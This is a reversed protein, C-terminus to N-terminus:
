QAEGAHRCEIAPAELVFGEARPGRSPPLAHLEFAEGQTIPVVISRCNFHAPPWGEMTIEEKRYPGGADMARCYETTADDMVASWDYAVVFDAVDPDDFKRHRGDNFATNFQMRVITGIRWMEGLTKDTILGQAIYGDFLKKLENETWTVDVRSLGNMVLIKARSLVKETEIGTVFFARRKIEKAAQRIAPTLTLGKDVFAQEVDNLPIDRLPIEFCEPMAYANMKGRQIEQQAELAGYYFASLMFRATAKEMDSRRAIKLGDVENEKEDAVIRRRKVQEILDDRAVLFLEALIDTIQKELGDETELIRAFNIKQEYATLERKVNGPAAHEAKAAKDKTDATDDDSTIPPPEGPVQGPAVVVVPPPEPKPEEFEKEELELLERVRNEIELDPTVVGKEVAAIIQGIYAYKAEDSLPEFKFTPYADVQGYNLDVLPKIIQEDVVTEELDSRVDDVFWLFNSAQQTGLAYAGGGSSSTNMVLEPVFVARGMYINQEQITEKFIEHGRGSTEVSTVVYDKPHLFGTRSQIDTVFKKAVAHAEADPRLPDYAIDIFGGGCRELYIGWFKYVHQKMTWARFCRGYDSRGYPNCFEKRYSYVIFEEPDLREERGGPTAQLLATVNRFEDVEFRFGHPEKTKIDLLGYKGKFEGSDKLQFPRNSISYGYELATLIDRLKERFSGNLRGLTDEIDAAIKQDKEEDSAPVIKWPSGLVAAKKVEMFASLSDDNRMEDVIGIGKKAFLADPNQGYGMLNWSSEAVAAEALPVKGTPAASGADDKRAHDGRLARYANRINLQM